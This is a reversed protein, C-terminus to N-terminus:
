DTATYTAVWFAWQGANLTRYGYYGFGDRTSSVISPPTNDVTYYNDHVHDVVSDHSLPQPLHHCWRHRGGAFWERHKDLWGRHPRTRPDGRSDRVRLEDLEVNAPALSARLVTFSGSGSSQYFIEFDSRSFRYGGSSYSTSDKTWASGNWSANVTFWVSSTDSYVRFRAGVGGAGISDWLLARASGLNPQRITRHEGSHTQNSRYHDGSYASLVEALATEVNSASLQGASDNVGIRSAGSPSATRTLAAALEQLQSQVNTNTLFSHAAAAIASANHAGSSAGVHANIFGLISSLQADVSGAALAHPTGTVADAGVRSAGANGSTTRELDDVIENIAGQVNTASVFGRATSDIASASHRRGSAPFHADLEADVEDLSAQATGAAPQLVNWLGTQIGVATGQAFIFAQRRSIDIDSIVIQTQGPRRLVDCVLIEDPQLAVKTAAGSAGEPAQRVVLEFSEDRRFYVQQSNGDTRPDSLLRNFRLFVGLWRENGATAVDTPIGALDVSCDVTQGTGFFIRQGLNDYARGPATLDVSLDAVPSHPAPVAGSIVGYINLDAALNRDAKELLEFGLDLEAESVRQRFYYDLRDAM